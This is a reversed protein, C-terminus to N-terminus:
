AGVDRAGVRWVSNRRDQSLVYIGRQTLHREPEEEIYGAAVVSRLAELNGIPQGTQVSRLAAIEQLSLGFLTDGSMKGVGEELFSAQHYRPKIGAKTLWELQAAWIDQGSCGRWAMPVAICTLEFAIYPADWEIVLGAERLSPWCRNKASKGPSYFQCNRRALNQIYNGDASVMNMLRAFHMQAAPGGGLCHVPGGWEVFEGVSVPTGSFTSAASYGLRISKGGVTHPIRWVQGPVKPIVIVSDKVWQAAEEAWSLVERQQDEREWDLVTAITPRYKELCTM